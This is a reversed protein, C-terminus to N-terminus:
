SKKLIKVLGLTLFELGFFDLFAAHKRSWVCLSQHKQAFWGSFLASLPM